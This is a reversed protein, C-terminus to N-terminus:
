SQKLLFLFTYKRSGKVSSYFFININLEVNLDTQENRECYFWLWLCPGRDKLSSEVLSLNQRLNLQWSQLCDLILYWCLHILLSFIHFIRCFFQIAFFELIFSALTTKGNESLVLAEKKSDHNLHYLWTHCKLKNLTYHNQSELSGTAYSFDTNDIWIKVVHGPQHNFILICNVLRTLILPFFVCVESKKQTAKLM